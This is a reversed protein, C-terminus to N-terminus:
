SHVNFCCNLKKKNEGIKKEKKYLVYKDQHHDKAKYTMTKQVGVHSVIFYYVHCIRLSQLSFM